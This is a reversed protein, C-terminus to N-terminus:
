LPLRSELEKETAASRGCARDEPGLLMLQISGPTWRILRSAANEKTGNRLEGQAPGRIPNRQRQVRGPIAATGIRWVNQGGEFKIRPKIRAHRAPAEIM